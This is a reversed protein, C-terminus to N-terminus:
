FKSLFFKIKVNVATTFNGVQINWTTAIGRDLNIKSMM